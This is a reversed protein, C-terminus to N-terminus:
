PTYEIVQIRSVPGVTSFYNTGGGAASQNWYVTGANPGVRVKFTTASTTGAVMDHELPLYGIYAATGMALTNASLADATSDQFLGGSAWIATSPSVAVLVSIMLRNTASTPTITIALETIEAGETNQPITNDLPFITSTSGTTASVARKVQVISGGGSATAAAWATGNWAVVQGSTAGGQALDSLPVTAAATMASTGNGKVYGTLTSAGTGGNAVAIQGSAIDSAAHTHSIAAYLADFYTKLTAKINAWTLKKFGYSAASDSLPLEDGDVPTAKSTGAHIVAAIKAASTVEAGTEIGSLKTYSAATFVGANTGDAAPLTADTGTDSLVTVTTSTQSYSLNAGGGGSSGGIIANGGGDTVNSIWSETSNYVCRRATIGGAGWSMSREENGLIVGDATLSGNPQTTVGGGNSGGKSVLVEGIVAVCGNLNLTAGAGGNVQLFNGASSAAEGGRLTATEIVCRGNITWSGADGANLNTGTTGDIDGGPAIISLNLDNAHIVGSYGANGNAETTTDPTFTLSLKTPSTEGLGDRICYGQGFFHVRQMEESLAQATLSFEGAGLIIAISDATSGGAQVGLASLAAAIDSFPRRPDGPLAVANDGWTEVYARRSDPFGVYSAFVAETVSAGNQIALDYSM